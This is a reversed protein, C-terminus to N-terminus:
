VLKFYVEKEQMYVYEVGEIKVPSGYSSYFIKDGKKVEKVDKGVSVVEAFKIDEKASDPLYFGSSTKNTSEVKKAVVKDGIAVIAQSKAMSGGKSASM